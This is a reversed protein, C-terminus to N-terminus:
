SIKYNYFGIPVYGVTMIASFEVGSRHRCNVELNTFINQSKASRTYNRLCRETTQESIIGSRKGIVDERKYGFLDIAANNFLVIKDDIDTVIVCERLKNVVSDLKHLYIKLTM